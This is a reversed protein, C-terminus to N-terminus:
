PKANKKQSDTVSTKKRLTSKLEDLVTFGCKHVKITQKTHDNPDLIIRTRYEKGYYDLYTVPKM